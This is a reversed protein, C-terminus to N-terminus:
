PITLGTYDGIVYVSYPANMVNATSPSYGPTNIIGYGAVISIRSLISIWSRHTM